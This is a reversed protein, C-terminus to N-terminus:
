EGLGVRDGGRDGHKPPKSVAAGVAARAIRRSPFGRIRSVAASLGVSAADGSL